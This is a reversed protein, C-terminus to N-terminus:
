TGQQARGRRKAYQDRAYQDVARSVVRLDEEEKQCRFCVFNDMPTSGDSRRNGSALRTGSSWQGCVGCEGIDM